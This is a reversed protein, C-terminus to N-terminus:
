RPSAAIIQRTPAGPNARLDVSATANQAEDVTVAVANPASSTGHANGFEHIASQANRSARFAAAAVENRLRASSTRCLVERQHARVGARTSTASNKLWVPRM